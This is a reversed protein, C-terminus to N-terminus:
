NADLIISADNKVPLKHIKHCATARATRIGVWNTLGPAHLQTFAADSRHLVVVNDLDFDVGVSTLGLRGRRKDDVVLSLHPWQVELARAGGGLM